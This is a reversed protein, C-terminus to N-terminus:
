ALSTRKGERFLAADIFRAAERLDFGVQAGAHTIGPAVRRLYRALGRRMADGRRELDRGAWRLNEYLQQRLPKDSKTM